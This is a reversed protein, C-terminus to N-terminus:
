RTFAACVIAVASAVNLSEASSSRIGESRPIHLRVKIFPILENSIGKSENGFVIMANNDPQEEWISNGSMFTGYVTIGSHHAYQKLMEPLHTYCVRTYLIAGMSAQVVKPNYCDACDPSCFIARIGFWSATRIITGLNGPDQINDLVLSLGESADIDDALIQPINIIAMVGAPSDMSSIQSFEKNSVEAIGKIISHGSTVAHGELWEKTAILQEIQVSGCAICDNIIKDGEAIFQKHIDRYKKIKLSRIYKIRNRSLVM